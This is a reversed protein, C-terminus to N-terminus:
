EIQNFNALRYFFGPNPLYFFGNVHLRDFAEWSQLNSIKVLKNDYYQYIGMSFSSYDIVPLHPPISDVSFNSEGSKTYKYFWIGNIWNVTDSTVKLPPDCLMFTSDNKIQTLGDMKFLLKKEGTTYKDFVYFDLEFGSQSRQWAHYVDGYKSKIDLKVSDYSSFEQKSVKTYYRNLGSNQSFGVFSIISLILICLFKKM